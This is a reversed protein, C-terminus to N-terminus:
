LQQNPTGPVSATLDRFMTKIRLNLNLEDGQASSLSVQDIIVFQDSLELNNILRRIEQYTGSVSFTIVVETSGATGPREGRIDSRSYGISKPVLGAAASLRKVEGILRTLREDQTSWRENFVQEVDQEVKRYAALQQEALMRARRGEQLQAKVQDLRADLSELRSQYQVRYTFFFFTNALLLVVLVILLLRKERWIM